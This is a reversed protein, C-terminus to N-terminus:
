LPLLSYHCSLSQPKKLFQRPAGDPCSAGPCHKAESTPLLSIAESTWGVEVKDREAEGGRHRRYDSVDDEDEDDGVGIVDSLGLALEGNMEQAETKLVKIKQIMEKIEFRLLGLFTFKLFGIVCFGIVFLADASGDLWERLPGECGRHFHWKARASSSYRCWTNPEIIPGEEIMIEPSYSHLKPPSPTTVAGLDLEAQEEAEKKEEDERSKALLRGRITNALAPQVELGQANPVCCSWPLLIDETKRFAAEEEDRPDLSKFIRTQWWTTNFDTPDGVGCCQSDQQLSDWLRRFDSDADRYERDFKIRLDEGLDTSIRDFRFM